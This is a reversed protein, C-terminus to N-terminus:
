GNVIAPRSQLEAIFARAKVAAEEITDTNSVHITVDHLHAAYDGDFPSFEFPVVWEKFVMPQPNSTKASECM